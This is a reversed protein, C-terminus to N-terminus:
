ALKHKIVLTIGSGILYMGIVCTVIPWSKVDMAAWLVTVQLFALGAVFELAPTLPETTTTREHQM